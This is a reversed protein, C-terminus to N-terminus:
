IMKQHHLIVGGMEARMVPIIHIVGKAAPIIISRTVVPDTTNGWGPGDNSTIATLGATFTIGGDQSHIGAHGCYFKIRNGKM